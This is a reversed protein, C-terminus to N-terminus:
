PKANTEGTQITKVRALLLGLMAYPIANVQPFILGIEVSQQLWITLFGVMLGFVSSDDLYAKSYCLLSGIGIICTLYGVAGSGVLMSVASNHWRIKLNGNGLLPREWWLKLGESSLSDRGNFIPKQFTEMSWENLSAALETNQLVSTFIAIFLPVLLILFIIVNSKLMTKAPLLKLICAVMLLGFLTAGRSNLADIWLFYLLTYVSFALIVWLNRTKNFSIVMVCFSFLGIMALSNGNWGSFVSGYNYLFLVAMGLIGYMMSIIQMQMEEAPLLGLLPILLFMVLWGIMDTQFELTTYITLALIGLILFIVYRPVTRLRQSVFTHYFILGFILFVTKGYMNISTGIGSGYALSFIWIYGMAPVILWKKIM